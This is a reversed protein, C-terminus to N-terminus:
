RRHFGRTQADNIAYAALKAAMVPFHERGDPSVRAGGSRHFIPDQAEDQSPMRHELTM